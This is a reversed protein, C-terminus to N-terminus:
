AALCGIMYLPLSHRINRRVINNANLVFTLNPQYRDAYVNMSKSQPVVGFKVEVPIIEGEKELLFEMEATRGQWCYLSSNANARMEETEPRSV